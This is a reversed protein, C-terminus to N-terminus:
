ARAIPRFAKNITMYLNNGRLTPKYSGDVRVKQILDDRILKTVMESVTDSSMNEKCYRNLNSKSIGNGNKSHYRKIAEFVIDVDKM